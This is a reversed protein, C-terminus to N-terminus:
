VTIGGPPPCRWTLLKVASSSSASILSAPTSAPNFWGGALQSGVDFASAISTAFFYGSRKAIM